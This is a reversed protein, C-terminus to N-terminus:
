LAADPLTADPDDAAPGVAGIADFYALHADVVNVVDVDDLLEVGHREAEGLLYGVLADEAVVVPVDIDQPRDIVDDPQLGREHLWRLHLLLLEELEGPTLRAQTAAPLREVVFAIAQDPQYVARPAVADLRRAERGITVAAISVVAIGALVVFVWTVAEM